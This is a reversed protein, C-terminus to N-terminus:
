LTGSAHMTSPQVLFLEGWASAAGLFVCFVSCLVSNWPFHAFWMKNFLYHLILLPLLNNPKVLFDDTEYFVFATLVLCILRTM